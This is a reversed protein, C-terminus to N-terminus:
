DQFPWATPSSSRELKREVSSSWEIKCLTSDAGTSIRSASVDVPFSDAFCFVPVICWGNRPYKLCLLKNLTKYTEKGQFKLM